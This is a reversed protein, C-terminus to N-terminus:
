GEGLEGKVAYINNHEDCTLTVGDMDGVVSILYEVMKSEKYTKTPVSLLDKFKNLDM